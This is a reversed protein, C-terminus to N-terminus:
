PSYHHEKREQEDQLTKRAKSIVLMLCGIFYLSIFVWNFISVQKKYNEAFSDLRYWDLATRHDACFGQHGNSAPEALCNYITYLRENLRYFEGDLLNGQHWITFMQAGAAVLLVALGYTELFRLLHM